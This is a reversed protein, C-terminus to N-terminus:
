EKTLAEDLNLILNCLGTFAAHETVDLKDDRKSEGVALLKKAAAADAAYQGRLRKLGGRLIELEEAKPKRALVLRFAREIRQDDNGEAALLREAMARAAEVFTVDNLTTLAHLPTNTRTQKVTCTQRAATDFFLTPGVIRRWFTYVSRRYLAEGKDQKYQKGGFTAEEWIGAPQYPKVPPGGPKDVLLGSAALAQDRIMWSPLRLRPGRALLRNQPDREALAPTVRSSQRYAASTVILRCLKKVDWGSAVFETALLDLLEQNDPREGQVGFDEVTKVLGIGFFQQWYRNVVVRATLPNDASVIWRALTLRNRPADAPLTSLIGPVGATVKALPKNYLGKELIFTDRPKPLDEMVMVRVVRRNLDDRASSLQSLKKVKDLYAANKDKFYKELQALHNRNRKGVPQKLADKVEKPLDKAQPSEDAPKGMERPFLSEELKDLEKAADGLQQQVGALEAQDKPTMQEIVPKSQPDGGGGTVPTQNFFSFLGYYEKQLVPDFKHDHCRCCTMTLGLWVTATTETMDMVYEVRNEEAIRGGEGNIMHNRLFATAMKQETTADPLLDGALQWVTFQDFPMNNNFAGIAWDRWPWMTREADGQYGNSDAYRAADLWEWVMREGYRPSVLLREVVKEHATPSDDKLFADVEEPTPPLGTLDLTVRRILTEKTAEAAPALGEKELRALVFADLGNRVWAQNRLSPLPPRQPKEFAWHKGWAAGEDVWRKLTDIQQATLKKNAKPPPMVDKKATSTIRRIMDSAASKGPVIVPDEKRLAGDRTDLRLNGKRAGADPGHCQFCNESLVPLVERAFDVKAPAPPAVPADARSFLVAAVVLLICALVPIRKSSRCRPLSSM